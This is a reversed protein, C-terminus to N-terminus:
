FADLHVYGYEVPKPDHGKIRKELIGGNFVFGNVRARYDEIDLWEDIMAIFKKPEMDWFEFDTLHLYARAITYFYEWPWDDSVCESPKRKGRKWGKRWGDRM